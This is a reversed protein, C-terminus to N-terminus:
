RAIEHRASELDARFTPDGHLRAVIAAGAIRGAAVASASHAGCIVRSDGYDRGRALIEATRDPILEALLLSIATGWSTHGSPYDPSGKLAAEPQCIPGPTLAFPRPRAYAPKLANVAATVDGRMRVFLRALQPTADPSLTRGAAPTFDALIAPVSEDVDGIAQQWRASGALARAARFTALDAAEQPSGPQPAPPLVDVLAVGPGTLYRQAAAPTASVLAAILVVARRM